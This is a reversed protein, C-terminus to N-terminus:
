GQPPLPAPRPSADRRTGARHRRWALLMAAVAIGAGGAAATWMMRNLDQALMVTDVNGTEWFVWESAISSALSASGTALVVIGNGTAPDLRAATNIAPGNHGDHGRV